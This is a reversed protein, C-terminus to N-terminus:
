DGFKESYALCATSVYVPVGTNKAKRFMVIKGNGDEGKPSDGEIFDLQRYLEIARTNERHVSLRTKDIGTQDCWRLTWKCLYKGAGRGQHAAEVFVGFSPIEFGEDFGRLMSFGIIEGEEEIVFFCDQRSQDLLNEATERNLPFPHFAVTLEKNNNQEFFDGLKSKDHSRLRRCFFHGSHGM